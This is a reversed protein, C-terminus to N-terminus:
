RNHLMHRYCDSIAKCNAMLSNREMLEFGSRSVMGGFSQSAYRVEEGRYDARDNIFHMVSMIDRHTEAFIEFYSGDLWFELWPKIRPWDWVVPVIKKDPKARIGRWWAIFLEAVKIAEHASNAFEENFRARGLNAVKLDVQFSPKIPLHFPPFDQHPRYSHNLPMACIELLDSQLPDTGGVRIDIVVLVNLNLHHPGYWLKSDKASM